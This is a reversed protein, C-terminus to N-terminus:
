QQLQYKTAGRGVVEKYCPTALTDIQAAWHTVRVHGERCKESRGKRLPTRTGEDFM